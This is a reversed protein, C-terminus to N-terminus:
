GALPSTIPSSVIAPDAAPRSIFRIPNGGVVCGEPVPSAVVSGAAVTCRSGVDAMILSGEGVWTEEGVRVTPLAGMDCATLRGDTGREHQRRGNMVSVRNGILAGAGLRVRGLIAGCGVYVRPGVEAGRDNFYSLFGIDCDAACAKLTWRYFARRLYKGPLGPVLALAQGWFLFAEDRGTLRLEALCLAAAPAAAAACLGNTLAKLAAKM